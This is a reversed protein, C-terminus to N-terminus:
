ETHATPRRNERNGLVQFQVSLPTFLHGRGAVVKRGQAVLSGHINECGAARIELHIPLTAEGSLLDGKGIAKQIRFVAKGSESTAFANLYSLKGCDSHDTAVVLLSPYPIERDRNEVVVDMGFTGTYPDFKESVLSISLGRTLDTAGALDPPTARGVEAFHATVTSTVLSVKGDRSTENWFLHFRGVADATIQVGDPSATDLYASLGQGSAMMRMHAEVAAPQQLGLDEGEQCAGLPLKESVSEGGDVSVAFVTCGGPPLWELGVTGDVNVAIATFTSRREALEPVLAGHLLAHVSWTKGSDISSGLILAYRGNDIAPFAVYLKDRSDKRRDIALQGDLFSVDRIGPPMEIIGLPAYTTGEAKYLVFGSGTKPQALRAFLALISGDRLPLTGIPYYGTKAPDGEVSPFTPPKFHLGDDSVAMLARRHLWTGEGSDGFGNAVNNGFLYVKSEWSNDGDAVALSTWDIFPYRRPGTWTLGGDLSRFADTSGRAHNLGGRSTDSASAVFYSGGHAGAACSPESVWKSSADVLTRMWTNGADLSVYAASVHRGHDHDSEFDCVLLRDEDDPAASAFMKVAVGEIPLPVAPGVEVTAHRITAVSGTEKEQATLRPGSCILSLLFCSWQIFRREVLVERM